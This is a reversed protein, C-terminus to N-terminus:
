LRHRSSLQACMEAHVALAAAALCASGTHTAGCWVARTVVCAPTRDCGGVPISGSAQWRPLLLNHEPSATAGHSNMIILVPVISECGRLAGLGATGWLQACCCTRPAGPSGESRGCEGWSAM